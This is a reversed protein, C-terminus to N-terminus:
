LLWLPINSGVELRNCFCVILDEDKNCQRADSVDIMHHRMRTATMEESHKVMGNNEGLM